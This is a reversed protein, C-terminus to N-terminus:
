APAAAAPPPGLQRQDTVLVPIVGRVRSRGDVQTVRQDPRQVLKRRLLPRHDHEPVPLLEALRLGRLQEAARFARHLGGPGTAQPPEAVQGPGPLVGAQARGRRAAGPGRAAHVRDHINRFSRLSCPYRPVGAPRGPGASRRPRAALPPRAVPAAAAAAPETAIATATAPPPPRAVAPPWALGAPAAWGATWWTCVTASMMWLAVLAMSVLLRIM